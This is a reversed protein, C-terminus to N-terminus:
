CGWCGAASCCHQGVVCGVCCFVTRVNGSTMVVLIVHKVWCVFVLVAYPGFKSAFKGTGAMAAQGASAAGVVSMHSVLACHWDAGGVRGLGLTM